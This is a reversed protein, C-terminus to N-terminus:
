QPTKIAFHNSSRRITPDFPVRLKFRKAVEDNVFCQHDGPAPYIPRLDKARVGNLLQVVLKGANRGVAEYNVGFSALALGERVAQDGANFVPINMRYSEAVITPLVPQIPGSTGVYIFDAHGEFERMRAPIDKAQTISVAVVQLGVREAAANMRKVLSADSADSISYLMGVVKASPILRKAFVLLPVLDALDSSGTINEGSQGVEAILGAGVPDSVDCYVLPIDHIKANAVQAVPTSKLVIIRPSLDLLKSLMHPILSKDFGVDLIKYRITKNEVFGCEALYRKLGSISADLTPHSGYNAIAIIPLGSHRSDHKSRLCYLTISIIAATAALILIRTKPM